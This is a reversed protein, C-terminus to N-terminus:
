AEDEEDLDTGGGITEPVKPDDKRIATANRYIESKM